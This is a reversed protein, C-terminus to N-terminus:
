YTENSEVITLEVNEDAVHNRKPKSETKTSEAKSKTEAKPKAEAKPKNKAPTDVPSRGETPPLFAEHERAQPERVAEESSQVRPTAIPEVPELRVPANQANTRSQRAMSHTSAVITDAVLDLIANDSDLLARNDEIAYSFGKTMLRNNGILASGIEAAQEDLPALGSKKFAQSAHTMTQAPLTFHVDASCTAGSSAVNQLDINVETLKQRVQQELGLRMADDYNQIAMLASDLLGAQLADVLRNRLSPEDCVVQIEQVVPEAVEMEPEASQGEKNGCASLVVAVLSASVAYRLANIKRM